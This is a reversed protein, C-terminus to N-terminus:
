SNSRIWLLGGGCGAARLELVQSVITSDAGEVTREPSSGEFRSAPDATSIVLACGPVTRRVRSCGGRREAGATHSHYAAEVAKAVAAVPM